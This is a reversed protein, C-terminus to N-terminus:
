DDKPLYKLEVQHMVSELVKRNFAKRMFPQKPYPSNSRGYEFMSAVLPAPTLNLRDYGDNPEFYGSFGVKMNMADDYHTKFARRTTGLCDMIDSELMAKPAFMRIRKEVTKAGATVMEEMIEHINMELEKMRKLEQYIDNDLGHRFRAM